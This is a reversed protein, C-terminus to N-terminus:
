GMIIQFYLTLIYSIGIVVFSTVLLTWYLWRLGSSHAFTGGEAVTRVFAFFSLIAFILLAAAVVYPWLGVDFNEVQALDAAVLFLWVSAIGFTIIVDATAGVRRQRYWERLSTLLSITPLILWMVSLLYNWGADRTVVIVLPVLVFGLVAFVIGLVVLWRAFLPMTVKQESSIVQTGSKANAELVL